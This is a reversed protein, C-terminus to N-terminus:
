IAVHLVDRACGTKFLSRSKFTDAFGLGSGGSVKTKPTTESAPLVWGGVRQRNSLCDKCSAPQPMSVLKHM